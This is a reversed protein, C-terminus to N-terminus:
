LTNVRDGLHQKAWAIFTRTRASLRRSPSYVLAVPLPAPEYKDLIIQLQGAAVLEQIQYSLFLGAGLGDLCGAIAADGHNTSLRINTLTVVKNSPTIGFTIQQSHMLGLLQIFPIDALDSPKEIKAHAELFAPTACVCRRVSGVPTVVM